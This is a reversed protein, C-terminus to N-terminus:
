ALRQTSGITMSVPTEDTGGLHDFISQYGQGISEVRGFASTLLNGISVQAKLREARAAAQESVAAAAEETTPDARNQEISTVNSGYFFAGERNGFPTTTPVNTAFFLEHAHEWYTTLDRCKYTARRMGAQYAFTKGIVEGEFIRRPMGQDDYWFLHVVTREPAYFSSQTPVLTITATAPGDVAAGISASACPVRVGEM